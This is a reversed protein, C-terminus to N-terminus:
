NGKINMRAISNRGFLTPFYMLEVQSPNVTYSGSFRPQLKIRFVHKGIPLTECFISTKNKFYERHIELGSLGNANDDYSCGAPIPVEIMVYDGRKKATVEVIMEVPTGATLVSITKGKEEFHTQVEYLESVKQPDKNWNKHYVTLYLPGTGKKAITLSAGKLKQTYPFSDVKTTSAGSLSVSTVKNVNGSNALLGPIITELISATEVTNRWKHEKKIEIFYNRISPLYPHSANKAELIKYVLLTTKISNDYWDYSDTGWYYNGMMTQKKEKEILSLDYAYGNEQSIKIMLLKQYLNLHTSDKQIDKFYENYPIAFKMESLTNLVMLLDNGQLTHMAYALYRLAKEKNKFTYGDNVAKNVVASVYASMWANEPSDAWWGWGGSEKQGKELRNLLHQISSEEKFPQNLSKKIQKEMLLGNLKSATQEMCWYPYNKLGELEKLILELSNDIAYLTNEGEPLSVTITTDGNLTYLDGYAQECGVPLIPISKEEGDILGQPLTSSYTVKM